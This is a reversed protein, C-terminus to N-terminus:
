PTQEETPQEVQVGVEEKQPEEKQPKPKLITSVGGYGSARKVGLIIQGNPLGENSIIVMADPSLFHYAEQYATVLFTAAEWEFEARIEKQLDPPLSSFAVGDNTLPAAQLIDGVAKNLKMYREEREDLTMERRYFIEAGRNINKQLEDSGDNSASWVGEKTSSWGINFIHSLASMLTCLPMKEVRLTVRYDKLLPEEAELKVPATKGILAFLQALSAHKAELSVSQQLLEVNHLESWTLGKRTPIEFNPKRGEIPENPTVNRGLAVDEDKPRYAGRLTDPEENVELRFENFQFAPYAKSTDNRDGWSVTFANNTPNQAKRVVAGQWFEDGFLQEANWEPRLLAYHTFAVILAQTTVPMTNLTLNKRQNGLAFAETQAALYSTLAARLENESPRKEQPKQKGSAMILGAVKRVAPRSALLFTNNEYIIHGLQGQEELSELLIIFHPQQYFEPRFETIPKILIQSDVSTTDAILNVHSAKALSVTYDDVRSSLDQMQILPGLPRKNLLGTTNLGEVFPQCYAVGRLMLYSLLVLIFCLKQSVNNM